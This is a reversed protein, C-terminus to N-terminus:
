VDVMAEVVADVVCKAEVDAMGGLRKAEERAQVDAVEGEGRQVVTKRQEREADVADVAADM